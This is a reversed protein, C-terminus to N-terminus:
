RRFSVLTVCAGDGFDDWEVAFSDSDKDDVILVVPLAPDYRSLAEILEGITM